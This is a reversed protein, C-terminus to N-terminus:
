ALSLNDLLRDVVAEGNMGDAIPCAHSARHRISDFPANIYIHTDMYGM